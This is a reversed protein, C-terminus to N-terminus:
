CLPPLAKWWSRYPFVDSKFVVVGADLRAIKLLSAVLWQLRELQSRLRGTFERRKEAPLDSKSLLDAMVTM